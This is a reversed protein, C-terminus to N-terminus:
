FLLFSELMSSTFWIYRVLMSCTGEVPLMLLLEFVMSADVAELAVVVAPWLLQSEDGVM